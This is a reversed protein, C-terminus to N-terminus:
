AAHGCRESRDRWPPRIPVPPPLCSLALDPRGVSTVESVPTRRCPRIAGPDTCEFFKSHRGDAMRRAPRRHRLLGSAPKPERRRPPPSGSPPRGIAEESMCAHVCSFGAAGRMRHRSRRKVLPRLLREGAGRKLPSQSNGVAPLGGPVSTGRHLSLHHDHLRRM